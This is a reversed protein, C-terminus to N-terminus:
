RSRRRRWWRGLALGAFLSAAVLGIQRWVESRIGLYRVIVRDSPAASCAAFTRTEVGRARDPALAWAVFADFVDRQHAAGDPAVYAHDLGDLVLYRVQRAPDARLLEVALLDTSEIASNRDCTGRAIFVPVHLGRLDDLSTAGLAFSRLWALSSGKYEPPPSSGTLLIVDEFSAQAARSDGTRRALAIEDFFLSAGAGSLFGVAALEGDDLMRAAAAAVDGGESHGLLIVDSVWPQARLARVVDAADRAREQKSVGGHEDSCADAIASQEVFSTLHRREVAALHVTPHPAEAIAEFVLSSAIHREAGQGKFWFLPVCHSGPLMVVVPRRQADHQVYIPITTGDDRTVTWAEWPPLPTTGVPTATASAALVRNTLTLAAVCTLVFFRSV